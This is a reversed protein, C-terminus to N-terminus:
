RLGFLSPLDQRQGAAFGGPVSRTTTPGGCYICSGAVMWPFVLRTFLPRRIPYSDLMLFIKVWVADALVLSRHARM